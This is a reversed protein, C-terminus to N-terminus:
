IERKKRIYVFSKDDCDNEDFWGGYHEIIGRIIEKSSGWCGLCIYTRDSFVMKELGKSIYYADDSKDMANSYHYFLQRKEGNPMEFNIFGHFEWHKTDKGEYHFKHVPWKIDSLYEKTYDKVESVANVGYMYKLLKVIEKDSVWGKIYGRTDVSM